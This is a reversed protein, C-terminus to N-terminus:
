YRLSWAFLFALPELFITRRSLLRNLFRATERHGTLEVRSQQADANEGVGWRGVRALLYRSIGFKYTRM